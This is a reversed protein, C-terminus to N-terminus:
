SVVELIREIAKKRINFCEIEPLTYFAITDNSAGVFPLPDHLLVVPKNKAYAVGLEFHGGRGVPTVFFLLHCDLVAQYEKKAIEKLDEKVPIGTEAAKEFNKKYEEAWDYTLSIGYESLENRLDLVRQYNKLSSAIYIQKNM